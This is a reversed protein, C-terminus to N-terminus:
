VSFFYFFLKIAQFKKKHFKFIFVSFLSVTISFLISHTLGRHGWLSDYPIKFVYGVYDLDPLIPLIIMFLYFAFNKNKLPAILAITAGVLSHSIITAM